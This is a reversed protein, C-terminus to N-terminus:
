KRLDWTLGWEGESLVNDEFWFARGTNDLIKGALMKRMHKPTALHLPVYEGIICETCGCGPPDIAIPLKPLEAM